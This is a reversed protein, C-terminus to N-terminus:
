EKRAACLFDRLARDSRGAVLTLRHIRGFRALRRWVQAELPEDTSRGVRYGERALETLDTMGLRDLWFRRERSEGADIRSLITEFMLAAIRRVPWLVARDRAISEIDMALPRAYSKDTLLASLPAVLVGASDGADERLLQEVRASRRAIAIREM